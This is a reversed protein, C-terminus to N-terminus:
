LDSLGTPSARLIKSDGYLPLKPTLSPGISPKRCVTEDDIDNDHFATEYKGLGLGRLWVVIDM